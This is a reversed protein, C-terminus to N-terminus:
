GEFSLGLVVVELFGEGVDGLQSLHRRRPEQTKQDNQTHYSDCLCWHVWLV